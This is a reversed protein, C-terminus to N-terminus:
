QSNPLFCTTASSSSFSPASTTSKLKSGHPSCVHSIRDHALSKRLRLLGDRRLEALADLRLLRGELALERHQRADGLRPHVREGRPALPQDEAVAPAGGVGRGGGRPRPPPPPPPLHPSPTAPPPLTSIKPVPPPAASECCMAASSTLRKRRSRPASGAM